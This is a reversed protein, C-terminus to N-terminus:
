EHIEIKQEGNQKKKVVNMITKVVSIITFYMKGRM